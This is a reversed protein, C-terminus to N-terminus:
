SHIRTGWHFQLSGTNDNYKQSKQYLAIGLFQEYIKRM